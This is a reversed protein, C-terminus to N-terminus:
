IVRRCILLGDCAPSARHGPETDVAGDEVIAGLVVDRLNLIFPRSVASRATGSRRVRASRNPARPVLLRRPERETEGQRYPQLRVRVAPSSVDEWPSPFRPSAGRSFPRREVTNSSVCNLPANPDRARARPAPTGCAWVLRRRAARQPLLVLRPFARAACHMFSAGEPPPPRRPTRENIAARLRRLLLHVPAAVFM